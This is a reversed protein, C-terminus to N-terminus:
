LRGRMQTRWSKDLFEKVSELVSSNSRWETSLELLYGM